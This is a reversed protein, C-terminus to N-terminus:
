LAVILWVNWGPVNGADTARRQWSPEKLLLTGPKWASRFRSRRSEFGRGGAHCAPARVL